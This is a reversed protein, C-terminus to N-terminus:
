PPNRCAAEVATEFRRAFAPADAVTRQMRPRLGERLAALRQRDRALDVV